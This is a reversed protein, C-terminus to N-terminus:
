GTGGLRGHQQGPEKLTKATAELTKLLAYLFELMEDVTSRISGLKRPNDVDAEVTIHLGEDDYSENIRMWSPATEDDPKLAEIAAEAVSREVGHITLTVRIRAKSAAQQM